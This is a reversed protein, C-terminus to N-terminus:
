EFNVNPFGLRSSILYTCTGIPLGAVNETAVRSGVHVYGGHAPFRHEHYESKHRDEM